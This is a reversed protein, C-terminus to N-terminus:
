CPVPPTGEPPEPYTSPLRRSLRKHRKSSTGDFENVAKGTRPPLLEPCSRAGVRPSRDQGGTTSDGMRAREFGM